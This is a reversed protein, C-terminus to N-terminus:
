KDGNPITRNRTQRGPKARNAVTNRAKATHGSDGNGAEMGPPNVVLVDGPISTDNPADDSAGVEDTGTPKRGSIRVEWEEMELRLRNSQELISAKIGFDVLTIAVAFILCLIILAVWFEAQKKSMEM